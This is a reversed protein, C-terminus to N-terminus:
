GIKPSAAEGVGPIDGYCVNVCSKRVQLSRLDIDNNMFQHAGVTCLDVCWVQEKEKGILIGWSICGLSVM